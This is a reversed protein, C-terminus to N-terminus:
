SATMEQFVLDHILPRFPKIKENDRSPHVRNTLLVVLFDIELDLWFSTGTFGLHGVSKPSFYRGASSDTETPTDFGLARTTGRPKEQRQWFIRVWDGNFFNPNKSQDYARKLARILQFVEFATGFLGAQGSIGGVAYTNDDHVEGRLVKKRWPCDETAAYAEPDPVGSQTLPRFGLQILGLPTYVNKRIWIDLGEGATEEFIWELLIFGLDSYLTQSGPPYLLPEKKVWDRLIGKKDGSQRTLDLYYPQYAPFGASHALLRRLTIGQQEHSQTRDLWFGLPQDLSLLGREVLSMIGLTTALPKTLSALDFITETKLPQKEPIVSAYGYAKHLLIEDARAALLVAGPFVGEEIASYM